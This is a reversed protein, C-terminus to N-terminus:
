RWTAESPVCRDRLRFTKRSPDPHHSDMFARHQIGCRECGDWFRAWSLVRRFKANKGKGRKSSLDAARAEPTM